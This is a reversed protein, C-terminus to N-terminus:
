ATSMIPSVKDRCHSSLNLTGCYITHMHAKTPPLPAPHLTYTSFLVVVCFVDHFGILFSFIFNMSQYTKGIIRTIDITLLTKTVDTNKEQTLHEAAEWAVRPCRVATVDRPPPDTPLFSPPSLFITKMTGKTPPKQSRCCCSM